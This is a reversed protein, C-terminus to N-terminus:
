RFLSLPFNQTVEKGGYYGQLVVFYTGESLENGNEDRGNWKFLTEESEYVKQGWRNYVKVSLADYCRDFSGQELKFEDHIGDENPTFVNPVKYAPLPRDIVIKVKKEISDISGDCGLSYGIMNLNFTDISLIECNDPNWCFRVGVKGVGEFQTASLKKVKVDTITETAGTISNKWEFDYKGSTNAPPLTAVAGFPYADSTINIYFTDEDNKDFAALDFCGNQDFQLTKVEEFDYYSPLDNFRCNLAEYQLDRVTEGIKVGGRYEDIRVSIVYKGLQRPKANVCGTKSDISIIGGPGLYNILDVGTNWPSYNFGCTTTFSAIPQVLNYVLSDGDADTASFDICKMYGLCFYGDRPYDVFKPTSNGGTLAPDPIKTYLGMSSTAINILGSNRASISLSAMYGSPNNPLSAISGHYEYQQVCLGPPTYCEDGFPINFTSDLSVSVNQAFVCGAQDALRIQYTNSYNIGTCYRFLTMTVDYSNAGTQIFQIDGGVAHSSKASFSIFLFLTSIFLLKKM